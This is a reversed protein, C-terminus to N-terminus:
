NPNVVLMDSPRFMATSWDDLYQVARWGGAKDGRIVALRGSKRIRVQTGVSLPQILSSYSNFDDIESGTHGLASSSSTLNGYIDKNHSSSKQSLQSGSLNNDPMFSTSLPLDKRSSINHSPKSNSSKEEDDSYYDCDDIVNTDIADINVDSRHTNLNPSSSVTEPSNIAIM